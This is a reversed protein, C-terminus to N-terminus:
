GGGNMRGNTRKMTLAVGDLGLETGGLLVVDRIQIDSEEIFRDGSIMQRHGWNLKGGVSATFRREDTNWSICETSRSIPGLGISERRRLVYISAMPLPM